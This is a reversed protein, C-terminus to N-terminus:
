ISSETCCALFHDILICTSNELLWLERYDIKLNLRTESFLRDFIRKVMSIESNLSTINSQDIIQYVAYLLTIKSNLNASDVGLYVNLLTAAAKPLSYPSDDVIDKIKKYHCMDVIDGTIKCVIHNCIERTGSSKNAEKFILDKVWQLDSSIDKPKLEYLVPFITTRGSEYASKVISLEEM